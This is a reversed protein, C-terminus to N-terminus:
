DRLLARVPALPDEAGACTRTAFEHLAIEHANLFALERRDEAPAEAELRAYRALYPPLVETMAEVAAAFGLAVRAMGREQGLRVQGQDPTTDLGHRELLPVMWRRTTAELDALVRWIEREETDAAHEALTAFMAEGRVEGQYAAVIERLYTARDMAGVM